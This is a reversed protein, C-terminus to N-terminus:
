PEAGASRAAAAARSIRESALEDGRLGAMIGAALGAGPEGNGAITTEAAQGAEEAAAHASTGAVLGALSTVMSLLRMANTGTAAARGPEVLGTLFGAGLGGLVIRGPTWAAKWSSKLQRVDAGIRRENAEIANEAQEVKNILQEFRM